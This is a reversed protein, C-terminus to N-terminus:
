KKSNQYQFLGEAVPHAFQFQRWVHNTKIKLIRWFLRWKMGFLTRSEEWENFGKPNVLYTLRDCAQWKHGTFEGKYLIGFPLEEVKAPVTIDIAGGDEWPECYYKKGFRIRM